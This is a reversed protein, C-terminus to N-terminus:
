LGECETPASREDGLEARRIVNGVFPQGLLRGLTMADDISLWICAVSAATRLPLESVRASFSAMSCIFCLRYRLDSRKATRVGIVAKGTWCMVVSLEGGQGPFRCAQLGLSKVQPNPFM